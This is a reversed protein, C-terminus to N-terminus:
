RTKLSQEFWDAINKSGIDNILNLLDKTNNGKKNIRVKCLKLFKENGIKQELESLLIVGKGYLVQTAKPDNRSIGWISPTNISENKKKVIISNYADRSYLERIVLLSSYEAFSENLWDEWNDPAGNWWFHSIEHAIYQVYDIRQNLYISDSIGGLFLGGKRSYGGGNERKSVVLCMDQVQVEGFRTNYFKYFNEIDSQISDVVAESLTSNVVQFSQNLLQLERIKLDKSACIILDYVPRNTEFIKLGDKESYKGRAFVKYESPIDISVKYTFDGYISPYWPFYLGLEVWNAGIVNASWSPWETIKGQYSFEVNLVEGKKYKEGTSHIINIADPLWRVSNSSDVQFSNNGNISFYNIKLNKHLKFMLQQLSDEIVLYKLSGEVSIYHLQPIIKLQIDYYSYELKEASQSKCHVSNFSFLGIIFLILIKRKM